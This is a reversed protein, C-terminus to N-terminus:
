VWNRNIKQFSKQYAKLRKPLKRVKSLVGTEKNQPYTNAKFSAMSINKM